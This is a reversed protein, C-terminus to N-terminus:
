TIFILGHNPQVLSPGRTLRLVFEAYRVIRGLFSVQVATNIKVEKHTETTRGLFQTM